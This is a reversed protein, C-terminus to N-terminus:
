PRRFGTVPGYLASIREIAQALPEVVTAMHYGNAHIMRESDLMMGVHGQWFVLDGRQLGALDNILLPTGLGAQIMDSDRPCSLGAAAYSAQVLGSCDLGAQTKGGWLYPVHEFREAVAIPDGDGRGIPSIHRAWVFRGDALQAFDGDESIVAFRSNLYVPTVPQSKIGPQRYLYSSLVCLRHSAESLQDSLASAPLYGVYGDQQCQGWAWGEHVDFVRVREGFLAQSTLSADFRPEGHIDAVPATVQHIEGTTFRASEVQGRLREDAVDPRFANLRPDLTM